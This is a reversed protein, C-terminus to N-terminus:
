MNNIMPTIRTDVKIIEIMNNVGLALINYWNSMYAANIM